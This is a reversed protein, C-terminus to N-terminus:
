RRFRNFDKGAACLLLMVAGMAIVPALGGHLTDFKDIGAVCCPLSYVLNKDLVEAAALASLANVIGIYAFAIKGLANAMRPHVAIIMRAISGAIVVVGGCEMAVFFFKTMDGPLNPYFVALASSVVVAILVGFVMSPVSGTALPFLIPWLAKPRPMIHAVAGRTIPVPYFAAHLLIIGAGIYWAACWPPGFVLLTSIGFVVLQTIRLPRLYDTHPPALMAAAQARCLAVIIASLLVYFVFLSSAAFDGGGRVGRGIGIAATISSFFFPLFIYLVVLSIVKMAISRRRSCAPLLGLATVSVSSVFLLVPILVTISLDIGRMLYSLVFFPMAIAVAIASIVAAATIKGSVIQSPTLATTFELGLDTKSTEIATKISTFLPILVCTVVGTIISVAILPEEGLGKGYMAEQISIDHMESLLVAGTALILVIPLAVMGWLILRSRVLQRLEKLTVPNIRPQFKM